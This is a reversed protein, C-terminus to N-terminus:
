HKVIKLTKSSNGSNVKVLYTGAPLITLNVRAISANVKTTLVQQGLLNYIVVDSIDQTYSLNLVDKVPNPYANLKATAFNDTSLAVINVLMDITVGYTDSYCPEPIEQGSDATGIRMRHEGLGANVPLEFSADFVTTELDESEGVFLLENSEFVYNDNLDIWINTYYTYDTAFSIQVNVTDGQTIDVTQDSTLDTYTDNSISFDTSGVQVNTIGDNDLSEPESVCYCGDPATNFSDQICGIASGVVNYPILTYYYTTAFNGEFAYETVNGLNFANLVDSGGSTTGITIKYGDADPVATWEFLTAYNGCNSDLTVAVDIACEPIASPLPEWLVDDIGIARYVDGLGHKFAVFNGPSSTNFPVNYELFEETLNITQVLNFTNPDTPNTMTGVLLPYDEGGAAAKFKMRHTNMPLDTLQPTILILDAEDDEDNFMELWGGIENVGVYGWPNNVNQIKTWCEPIQLDDLSEFSESLDAFPECLTRLSYPGAWPSLSGSGCDSQVYYYYTTQPDLTFTYNLANIGTIPTGSGPVFTADGYEINFTTASPSAWSVIATSSTVTGLVVNTPPLCAPVPVINVLLDVTSGYTDSYCPNSIGENNDVSGIRMRHEGLPATQPMTFGANLVTPSDADSEGTFVIENEQFVYDDNFDIWVATNYGYSSFGNFTNFTIQLNSYIAQPLEVSGDVTKDYYTLGDATIFDTTGLQVNIIGQGDVSDPVSLCYCGDPATEFIDETCGIASSNANYATLTYYYTTAYAAEVSFSTVNGLDIDNILDTGGTVTGIKLRYGDASEVESWAFTTAFNGCESNPTVVLDSVCGPPSSPIEEFIINDIHITAYTENGGHKFAIYNGAAGNLTVNYENFGEVINKTQLLTFTAPNNPSSMTGIQLPYDGGSARFKVRMNNMSSVNASVLMVIANIDGSNYLEVSNNGNFSTYNVVQLNAWNDTSNVIRTWCEPLTTVLDFNEIFDPVPDCATTFSFPGSWDSLGFSGCNSQVYYDYNTNQDLLTLTHPNAIGSVVIGEGQDFGEIGYEINYLTIGPQLTWALTATTPSLATVNLGVPFVCSLSQLIPSNFCFGYQYGPGAPDDDYHIRYRFGSLQNPTFLSIDLPNTVLTTKPITCFDDTVNGDNSSIDQWPVWVSSDANWYEFRLVEEPNTRRFGYEVTIKLSTEGAAFAASLDIVPSEANINDEHSSGADDDDFAFNATTTPNYEFAISSTAYSGTVTWASNPWEASENLTQANSQFYILLAILLLYKKKM